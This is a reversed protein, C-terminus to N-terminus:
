GKIICHANIMLFKVAVMRDMSTLLDSTYDCDSEANVMPRFTEVNKSFFTLTKIIYIWEM